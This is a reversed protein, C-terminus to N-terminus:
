WYCETREVQYAISLNSDYSENESGKLIIQKLLQVMELQHHFVPNTLDSDQPLNKKSHTFCKKKIIKISKLQIYFLINSGCIIQHFLPNSILCEVM